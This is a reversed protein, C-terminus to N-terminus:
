DTDMYHVESDDGGFFPQMEDSYLEYLILNWIELVCLGVIFPKTFKIGEESLPHLIFKEYEASKDDFSCQRNLIKHTYSKDIM